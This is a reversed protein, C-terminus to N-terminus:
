VRRRGGCSREAASENGCQSSRESQGPHGGCQCLDRSPDVHGSGSTPRDGSQLRGDFDRGVICSCEANSENSEGKCIRLITDLEDKLASGSTELGLNSPTIM